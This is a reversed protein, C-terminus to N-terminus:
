GPNLTTVVENLAFAEHVSVTHGCSTPAALTWRSGGSPVEGDIISAYESVTAPPAPRNMETTMLISAGHDSGRYLYFWTAM